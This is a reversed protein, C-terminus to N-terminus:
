HNTCNDLLGTPITSVTTDMFMNSIDLISVCGDLFDAPISSISSSGDFFGKAYLLSSCNELSPISTLSTCYRFAHDLCETQSCNIFINTDVNVLSNSDARRIFVHVRRLGSVIRQLLKAATHQFSSVKHCRSEFEWVVEIACRQTTAAPTTSGSKPNTAPMTGGDDWEHLRLDQTQSLIRPWDDEMTRRRDDTM